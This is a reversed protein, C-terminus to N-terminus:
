PVRINMVANVLVRWRNRDQALDTWDMCRYGKRFIWKLIMRVDVGLDVLHDREALDGGGFEQTNCLILGLELGQAINRTMILITCHATSLVVGLGWAPPGGRTPLKNAAARWISCNMSKYQTM